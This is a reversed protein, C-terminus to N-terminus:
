PMVGGPPSFKGDKGAAWIAEVARHRADLFAHCGLWDGSHGRNGPESGCSNVGHGGKRCQMLLNMLNGLFIIDEAIEDLIAEHAVGLDRLANKKVIYLQDTIVHLLHVPVEAAPQQGMLALRHAIAGIAEQSARGFDLADEGGVELLIGDLAVAFQTDLIILGEDLVGVLHEVHDQVANLALRLM